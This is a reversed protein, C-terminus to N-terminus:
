TPDGETAPRGFELARLWEAHARETADFARDAASSATLYEARLRNGAPRAKWADFAANSAARASQWAERLRKTRHDLADLVATGVQRDSAFPALAGIAILLEDKTLRGLLKLQDETM